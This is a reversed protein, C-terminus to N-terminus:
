IKRGVDFGERIAELIGQPKVCDGIRFVEPVKGTAVWHEAPNPVAGAAIVATDAKIIRREGERTTIVLGKQTFEEYRIGTLMTVGKASLRILLLSRLTADMRTAMEAGRRTITVKKGADALFEATECGVLEGGIVIIRDGVGVKGQLVEIATVVRFKDIGPIEPIFPRAGTAFIVVDPKGENVVASSLEMALNIKVNWKKMQTQYYPLLTKLNDKYPPKIALPLQGGLENEKEFVTVTHGRLASIRAAEMGAPGGGVVFVKKSGQALGYRYEEEKGLTPNVTCEISGVQYLSNVCHLCGICPVIEDVKGLAAKNPVQPDTLLGRGIAILDAKGEEIVKEGLEIDIRSVAIIPINVGKKIAEALRIMSGQPESTPPRGLPNSWAFASVHIADAGANEIMKAVQKGEDLTIGNEIGFERANIRCWVPFASDTSTKIVRIIELLFRARNALNGGYEDTRDNSHRALFQTILYEHAAHIEVGDFGATKARNAAEAFRIVIRKIESRTLEKPVETKHYTWIGLPAAIPSPGVPHVGTIVPSATRGAHALQIAVKAGHRHVVQALESLGLIFRDDDIVLQRRTALGGVPYDVNSAEIIILGVGGQARQKHYNKLRESVYGGESAFGTVMPPMVIRNKLSIGGLQYPEFVKKLM